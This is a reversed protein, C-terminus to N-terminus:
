EDEHQWRGTEVVVAKTRFRRLKHKFWQLLRRITEAENPRKESLDMRM